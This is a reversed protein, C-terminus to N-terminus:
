DFGFNKYDLDNLISSKCTLLYAALDIDTKLNALLNKQAFHLVLSCYRSNMSDLSQNFAINISQYWRFLDNREKYDRPLTDILYKINQTSNLQLPNLEIDRISELGQFTSKTINQMELLNLRVAQAYNLNSFLNDEIHKIRNNNLDVSILNKLNIFLDQHLYDILNYCLNLHYLSSLGTFAKSGIQSIMNMSLNIERLSECDKFSHDEIEAIQNSSLSLYMLTDMLVFYSKKVATLNNRDMLLTVLSNWMESVVSPVHNFQNDQLNLYYVSNLQYWFETLNNNNLRIACLVNLNTRSAFLYKQITNLQNYSMDIFDYEFQNFFSSEEIYKINNHSLDLWRLLTIASFESERIVEIRNWSLDLRALLTMSSVDLDTSISKIGTNSCNITGLRYNKTLYGRIPVISNGSLDIEILYILSSFRAVSSSSIKVERLYLEALTSTMKNFPILDVLGELCNYSLDLKVTQSIKSFQSFYRVFSEIFETSMNRLSFEYDCLTCLGLSLILSSANKLQKNSSFEVIRLKHFSQTTNIVVSKLLNSDVQLSELTFRLSNSLYDMRLESFRNYSLNLARLSTLGEFVQPGIFVRLRNYSLDLITLKKMSKFVDSEIQDIYNYSLNLRMLQTLNSFVGSSLKGIVNNDISFNQLLVLRRLMSVDIRYICNHDLQLDTLKIMSDFSGSEISSIQNFSLRLRQLATMNMFFTRKIFGIKNFYLDLELLSQGPSIFSYPEITEILNNDLYLYMLSNLNVFTYQNIRSLFNSSLNLFTLFKDLSADFANDDIDTLYNDALNLTELSTLGAFTNNVLSALRNKSLDLSPLYTLSWFSYPYLTEIDQNELGLICRYPNLSSLNFFARSKINVLRNSELCLDTLKTLGYFTDSEIDTLLNFSLSLSVLSKLDFFAGSEIVTISNSQLYLEELNSLCKFWKADIYTLSNLEMDISILSCIPIIFDLSSLKNIRLTLYFLKLKQFATPEIAIINNRELNLVIIALGDSQSLSSNSDISPTNKNIYTITYQYSKNLSAFEGPLQQPDSRRSVCSIDFETESIVQCSCSETDMLCPYRQSYVSRLVLSVLGILTLKHM